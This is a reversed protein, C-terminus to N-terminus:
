LPFSGTNIDIEISTVKEKEFKIYLRYFYLTDKKDPYYRYTVITSIPNNLFFDKTKPKGFLKEIDKMAAKENIGHKLDTYYLIFIEKFIEFKKKNYIGKYILFM